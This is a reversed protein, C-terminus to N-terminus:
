YGAFSAVVERDFNAYSADRSNLSVSDMSDVPWRIRFAADNWRVGRALEPQYYDTMQYLVAADDSLTLFGHAFGAPVYLAKRDRANLDFGVSQCFTPSDPRLDIIVDHIAGAVCRVLKSERSPATQYHMGRLTGRKRTVSLNTQVMRFVLGAKEFERECHLRMFTGREDDHPEVEVLKSGLLVTDVFRM